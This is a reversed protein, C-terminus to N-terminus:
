IRIVCIVDVRVFLFSNVGYRRLRSEKREFPIHYEPQEIDNTNNATM